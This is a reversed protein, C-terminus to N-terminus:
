SRSSYWLDLAYKICRVPLMRSGIQFRGIHKGREIGPGPIELGAPIPTGYINQMYYTRRLDLYFRDVWFTKATKRDIAILKIGM